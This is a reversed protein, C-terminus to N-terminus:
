LVTEGCITEEGAAFRNRWLNDGRKSSFPKEVFQRREQQLVTEGCITKEGAVSRNRWLNDGRRSCFHNRWLNDGRRFHNRRM